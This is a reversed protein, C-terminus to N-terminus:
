WLFYRCIRVRVKMCASMRVRTHMDAPLRSETIGALSALFLFRHAILVAVVALANLTGHETSTCAPCSLSKEPYALHRHGANIHTCLLATSKRSLRSASARRQHTHIRVIHGYHTECNAHRRFDAGMGKKKPEERSPPILM